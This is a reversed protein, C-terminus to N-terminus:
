VAVHGIKRQSATRAHRCLGLAPAVGLVLTLEGEVALVIASAGLVFVIASAGVAIAEEREEHFPPEALPGTGPRM